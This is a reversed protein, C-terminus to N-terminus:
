PAFKALAIDRAGQTPYSGLGFDLTGEFDAAVWTIGGPASTIARANQQGSTSGFARSWVHEGDSTLRAIVVDGSSNVTITGGGLDFDKSTWGALLLDGEPTLELDQLEINTYQRSWLVTGNPAFKALFLDGGNSSLPPDEFALEGYFNGAVYANGELDAAVKSGYVYDNGYRRSWAHGFTTKYLKAVVLDDSGEASLPNGGFDLAGAFTGALYVHDGTVSLSEGYQNFNGGFRQSYQPVGTANFRALFVDFYSSNVAATMSTLSGFKLNGSFAGTIFIENTAPDISVAKPTDLYDDGYAASFVHEGDATLKALVIDTDAVLDDGGFNMVGFASALLIVNDAVDVAVDVATHEGSPGVGFNKSWLPEGRASFKALFVDSTASQATLTEEGFEISGTFTGFIYVNGESDVAISTVEDKSADGFSESWLACPPQPCGCVNDTGSGGCTAEGVCGGCDVEEECTTLVGCKDECLAAAEVPTCCTKESTCREGSCDSPESCTKGDDCPSCSGGCDVDTEDGNLDGDSCSAPENRSGAAGGDGGTGDTEAGFLREDTTCSFAAVVGLPITFLLPRLNRRLRM